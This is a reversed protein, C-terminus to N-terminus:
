HQYDKSEGGATPGDFLLRKNRYRSLKIVMASYIQPPILM